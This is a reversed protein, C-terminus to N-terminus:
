GGATGSGREAPRRVAPEARRGQSSAYTAASRGTRVAYAEHIPGRLPAAAPEPRAPAAAPANWSEVLRVALDVPLQDYAKGLAFVRNVSRGVSPNYLIVLEGFREASIGLARCAIAFPEGSEDAVIRAALGASLGAARGFLERFADTRGARLIASFGDLAAARTKSDTRVLPAALHAQGPADTRGWTGGAMEMRLRTLIQGRQISSAHWYLETLMRAPLGQCGILARAIAPDTKAQRFLEQAADPSPRVSENRLLLLIAERDEIAVIADVTAPGPAPLAAIARAHDLSTTLVIEALEEDGLGASQRLLPAAVEFDKRVLVNVLRRPPSKLLAIRQAIEQHMVTGAEEILAIMLEEQAAADGGDHRDAEMVILDTLIRLVTNRRHVGSIEAGGRQATAENRRGFQM